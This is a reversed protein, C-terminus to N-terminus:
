RVALAVLQRVALDHELESPPVQHDAQIELLDHALESLQVQHDAQIELVVELSFARSFFYM